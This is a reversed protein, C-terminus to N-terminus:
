NAPKPEVWFPGDDNRLYITMNPRFTGSVKDYLGTTIERTLVVDTDGSKLQTGVIHVGDGKGAKVEYKTVFDMPAIYIDMVEGKVKVDLHLGPLPNGAPVQHVATVTTFFDVAGAASGPIDKAVASASLVFGALGIVVVKWGLPHTRRKAIGRVTEKRMATEGAPLMRLKWVM